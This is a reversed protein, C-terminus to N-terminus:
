HRYSYTVALAGNRTGALSVRHSLDVPDWRMGPEALGLVGGVLAGAGGLGVGLIIAKERATLPMLGPPDDGSALGVAGGVTAGILFGVGAVLQAGERRPRPRAVELKTISHLPMTVTEASAASEYLILSDARVGAVTFTGKSSLTSIRVRSGETVPVRAAQAFVTSPLFCVCLAFLYVVTRRM